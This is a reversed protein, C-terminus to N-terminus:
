NLKDKYSWVSGIMDLVNKGEVGLERCIKIDGLVEDRLYKCALEYGEERAKSLEQELKNDLYNEEYNLTHCKICEWHRIGSSEIRMSSGCKRCVYRKTELLNKREEM